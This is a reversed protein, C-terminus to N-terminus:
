ALRVPRGAQASRDAAFSVEPTRAAEDLSTLPMERDEHFMGM